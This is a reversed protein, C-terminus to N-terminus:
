LWCYKLRSLFPLKKLKTTDNYLEYIYGVITDDSLFQSFVTLKWFQWLGLEVVVWSLLQTQCSFSKAGGGGGGAGGCLILVVVIYWKDKVWNQGFKLNLNKHSVFIVVVGVVGVHDFVVVFFVVVVVVEKPESEISSLRTTDLTTLFKECRIFKDECWQFIKTM